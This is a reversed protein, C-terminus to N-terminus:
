VALVAEAVLVVQETETEVVAAVTLLQLAALATQQEQVAMAARQQVVAVLVVQQQAQVVLVRVAALQLPRAAVALLLRYDQALLQATQDTQTVQEVAASLQRISSALRLPLLELVAVVAVAAAVTIRVM